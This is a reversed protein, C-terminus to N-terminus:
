NSTQKRYTTIYTEEPMMITEYKYIQSIDAQIENWFNNDDGYLLFIPEQILNLINEIAQNYYTGQLPGHVNAAKIYDTRRCHIV